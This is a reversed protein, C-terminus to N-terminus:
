SPNREAPVLLAQRGIIAAIDEASLGHFHIHQAPAEIAQQPVSLARQVTEPVAIAHQPAPATRVAWDPQNFRKSLLYVSAATIVGVLALGAVIFALYTVVFSVAAAVVALVAAGAALWVIAGVAEGAGAAVDSLSSEPACM